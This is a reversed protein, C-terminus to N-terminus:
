AQHVTVNPVQVSTGDLPSSLVFTPTIPPASAPNIAAPEESEQEIIASFRIQLGATGNVSAAKGALTTVDYVLGPQASSTQTILFSLLATTAASVVLSPHFMNEKM